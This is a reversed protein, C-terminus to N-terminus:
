RFSIVFGRRRKVSIYLGGDTVVKEVKCRSWDGAFQVDVNAFTTEGGSSCTLIPYLTRVDPYVDGGAATDNRVIVTVAAPIELKCNTECRAPNVEDPDSAGFDFPMTWETDSIKVYSNSLAKAKNPVTIRRPLNYPAYGVIDFRKDFWESADAGSADLTARNVANSEVTYYIQWHRNYVYRTFYKKFVLNMQPSVYLNQPEFLDAVSTDNGLVVTGLGKDFAPPNGVTYLPATGAFLALSRDNNMSPNELWITNGNCVCLQLGRRRVGTTALGSVYTSSPSFNKIRLTGSTNRVPNYLLYAGKGSYTWPNYLRISSTENTTAIIIKHGDTSSYHYFSGEFDSLENTVVIYRGYGNMRCVGTGTIGKKYFHNNNAGQGAVIVGNNVVPTDIEMNNQRWSIIATTGDITPNPSVNPNKQVVIAVCGAPVAMKAFVAHGLVAVNKMNSFDYTYGDPLSDLAVGGVFRIKANAPLGDAALASWNIYGVGKANQSDFNDASREYGAVGLEYWGDGDPAPVTGINVATITGSTDEASLAALRLGASAICLVFRRWPASTLSRHVTCYTKKM